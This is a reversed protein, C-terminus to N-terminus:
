LDFDFIKNAETVLDYKTHGLSEEQTQIAAFRKALVEKTKEKSFEATLSTVETQVREANEKLQNLLVATLQKIDITQLFDNVTSVTTIIECLDDLASQPIRHNNDKGYAIHWDYFALLRDKLFVLNPVSQTASLVHNEVAVNKLLEPHHRAIDIIEQATPKQSLPGLIREQLAGTDNLLNGGGALSASGSTTIVRCLANSQQIFTAEDIPMKRRLSQRVTNVVDCSPQTQVYHLETLMGNANRSRSETEAQAYAVVDRHLADFARVM